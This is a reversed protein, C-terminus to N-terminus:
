FQNAFAMYIFGFGSANYASTTLTFGNADFTIRNALADEANSLDSYLRNDLGRKNDIMVWNDASTYAKIIVFAPEFGTTIVNTSGNGTYSGFKSFGAVSHWCYAIFENPSQNTLGFQGVTFVSNTPETDNWIWDVNNKAEQTTNLLMHFDAGNYSNYVAWSEGSLSRNKVIILDPKSSLGHGVTQNITASGTYSVISFGADVNASVESTISGDTNEVAPGGAKWCWAVYTQGSQNLGNQSTLTFGDTNFSSLYSTATDEAITLNSFLSHAGAGRVSDTLVNSYAVSRGKAWVLDPQFEVSGVNQTSGNGTYLVTNFSAGSPCAVENYLTEVETATIARDYIRVQDISGNAWQEPTQFFRGIRVGSGQRSNGNGTTIGTQEVGDIFFKATSSNSVQVYHHWNGDNLDISSNFYGFKSGEAFSFGVTNASPVQLEFGDTWSGRGISVIPSRQNETTKFWASISIDSSWM